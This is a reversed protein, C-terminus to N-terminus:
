DKRKINARIKEERENRLKEDKRRVVKEMM